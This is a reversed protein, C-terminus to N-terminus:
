KKKLFKAGQSRDKTRKCKNKKLLQSASKQRGDTELVKKSSKQWRKKEVKSPSIETVQEKGSSQHIVVTKSGTL